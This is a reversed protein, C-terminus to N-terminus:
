TLTINGSGGVKNEINSDIFTLLVDKQLSISDIIEERKKEM